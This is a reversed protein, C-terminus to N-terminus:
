RFSVITDLIHVKMVNTSNIKTLKTNKHSLAFYLGEGADDAMMSPTNLRTDLLNESSGVSLQMHPQDYLSANFEDDIFEEEPQPFYSLNIRRFMFIM